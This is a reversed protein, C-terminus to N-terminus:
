SQASFVVAIRMLLVGVIVGIGALRAARAGVGFLPPLLSIVVLAWLILWPGGLTRGLTGAPLLTFFFVAIAILELLAFYRDAVLLRTETAQTDGRYPALWALLAASGSLASAVFLAGIAWSDSWVPQNSVSLVVGTYSALYLAVLSGIAAWVRGIGPLPRPRLSVVFSGFAFVSFLLLAWSGLSIPSWYKFNLGASGPTVDVLMHWFRMPQGLDITLFAGCVAALPFAVLYGTRIVAEDRPSGWVRLITALTYSGGALGALFFYGVIWSGWMPPQVFHEAM